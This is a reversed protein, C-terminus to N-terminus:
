KPANISTFTAKANVIDPYSIIFTFAILIVIILFFLSIGNRVIWNPKHSIIVQVENSLIRIENNTVTPMIL